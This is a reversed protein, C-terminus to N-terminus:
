LNYLVAWHNLQYVKDTIPNTMSCKVKLQTGTNTFRHVENLTVTEYHSGNDASLYYVATAGTGITKNAVLIANTITASATTATSIFDKTVIGNELYRDYYVSTSNSEGAGSQGEHKIYWADGDTLASIDVATGAGDGNTDSTYVQVNNTAPNIELRLRIDANTGNTSKLTVENAHTDVLKTISTGNVGTNSTQSYRIFVTGVRNFNQANVKDALAYSTAGNNHTIILFGNAESVTGSTSWINADISSDQFDDMVSPGFVPTDRIYSNTQDIYTTTSLTDYNQNEFEQDLSSNFGILSSNWLLNAYNKFTKGTLNIVDDADAVFGNEITM